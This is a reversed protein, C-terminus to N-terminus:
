VCGPRRLGHPARNFPKGDETVDEYDFEEYWLGILSQELISTDTSSPNDVAACGTMGLLLMAVIFMAFIKQKM